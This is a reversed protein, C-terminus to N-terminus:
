LKLKNTVKLRVKDVAVGGVIVVIVATCIRMFNYEEFGFLHNALAPLYASEHIMYVAFMSSAIYNVPSSYTKITDASVVLTMALLLLFPNYYKNVYPQIGSIHNTVFGVVVPLLFLALAPVVFWIMRRKWRDDMYKRVYRAIAYYELMVFVNTGDAKAIWLGFDIYLLLMVIKTYQRFSLRDLFNNIGDSFIYLVIYCYVFWLQSMGFMQLVAMRAGRIEPIFLCFAIYFVFTYLVSQVIIDKLRDARFRIGYYGTIFLFIPVGLQGLSHMTLPLLVVHNVGGSSIKAFTELDFLGLGRGCFHFMVILFMSIIRLCEITSNRKQKVITM